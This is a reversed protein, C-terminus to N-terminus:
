TGDYVHTSIGSQCTPDANIANYYCSAGTPCVPRIGGKIYQSITDMYLPNGITGPGDDNGWRNEFAALEKAATMQRLNNICSVRHSEARAKRFSPIAIAALLGIISVVIMIEVLTFGGCHHGDGVVQRGGTDM